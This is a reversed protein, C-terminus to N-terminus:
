ELIIHVFSNDKPRVNGPVFQLDGLSLNAGDVLVPLICKSGAALGGIQYSIVSDDTMIAVLQSVYVNGGNSRSHMTRAGNTKIDNYLEFNGQGTAGELSGVYAGKESRFLM